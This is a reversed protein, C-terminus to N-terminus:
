AYGKPGLGILKIIMEVLFAFSLINNIDEYLHFDQPPLPYRDLALIITNLM